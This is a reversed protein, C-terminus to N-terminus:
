PTTLKCSLQITRLHMSCYSMASHPAKLKVLVDHASIVVTLKANASSNQPIYAPSISLLTYSGTLLLQDKQVDCM